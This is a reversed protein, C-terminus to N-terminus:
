KLSALGELAFTRADEILGIRALAGVIRARDAVGPGSVGADACIWLALLAAEGMRRGEAAIALAANRGAPSKGEPIAFGALRTRDPGNPAASFAALLLAASQLRARPKPDADTAAAVLASVGAEPPLGSRLSGGLGGIVSDIATVDFVPLTPDRGSLAAAVASAPKAVALDLKLSRSLALDLGNRLSAAGPAGGGLRASMLRGFTVDRAQTQTQALDFTLQAQDVRGVEVQCFARLRLWNIEGRGATLAESIACARPVDGTLLAVEAAARSLDASREVGPARELIRAASSLDGLAILANARAGTLAGDAASGVPGPAGTALIRRALQSAAPSLPRTALLPLVARAMEVPTGRWLESPLGTERGATSFADPAALETVQVQAQAPSAIAVALILLLVSRWM